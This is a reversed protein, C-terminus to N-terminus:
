HWTKNTIFAPSTKYLHRRLLTHSPLCNFFGHMVNSRRNIAQWLPKNVTYFLNIPIQGIAAQFGANTIDRPISLDASLPKAFLRSGPHLPLPFFSCKSSSDCQASVQGVEIRQGSKGLTTMKSCQQGAAKIHIGEWARSLIKIKMLVESVLIDRGCNRHSAVEREERFFRSNKYFTKAKLKWGWTWFLTQTM